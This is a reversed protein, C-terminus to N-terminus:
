YQNLFSDKVRDLFMFADTCFIGVNTVGQEIATKLHFRQINASWKWNIENFKKGYGEIDEDDDWDFYAENKEVEPHDKYFDKLDKVILNKRNVGKFYEVKDTTIFFYLNDLDPYLEFDLLRELALQRHRPGNVSMCIALKEKFNIEM